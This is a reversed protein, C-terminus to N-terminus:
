LVVLPRQEVPVALVTTGQHPRRFQFHELQNNTPRIFLSVVIVPVFNWIIGQVRPDDGVPDVVLEVLWHGSFELALVNYLLVLVVRVVVPIMIVVTGAVVMVNYRSQSVSRFLM